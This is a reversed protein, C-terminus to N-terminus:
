WTTCGCREYWSYGGTVQDNGLLRKQAKKHIL